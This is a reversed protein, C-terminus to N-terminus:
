FADDHYEEKWKLHNTPGNNQRARRADPIRDPDRNRMIVNRCACYEKFDWTWNKIRNGDKNHWLCRCRDNYWEEAIADTTQPGNPGLNYKKVIKLSPIGQIFREIKRMDCKRLDIEGTLYPLIEQEDISIELISEDRACAYEGGTIKETEQKM